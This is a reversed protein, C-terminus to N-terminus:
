DKYFLVVPWIQNPASTFWRQKPIVMPIDSVVAAATNAGFKIELAYKSMLMSTKVSYGKTTSLVLEDLDFSLKSCVSRQRLM